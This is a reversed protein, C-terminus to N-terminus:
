TLKYNISLDRGYASRVHKILLGVAGDKFSYNGAVVYQDVDADTRNSGFGSTNVASYSVDKFKGIYAVGTWPGVKVAYTIRGLPKSSNAFVTGWVEDEQYGVRFLGIPSTYDIYVYDFAINQNEATTGASGIDYDSYTGLQSLGGLNGSSGPTSRSGGWIREMADFRTVLKLCPSVIFDMGVRLRQYFFATSGGAPGGGDVVAVSQGYPVYYNYVETTTRLTTNDLYMGAAYYEGSVKVDVAFASVSFAMVLGLSLLVLWFKKMREEKYNFLPYFRSQLFPYKGWAVVNEIDQM